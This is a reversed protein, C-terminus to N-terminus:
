GKGGRGTGELGVEKRGESRAGDGEGGGLGVDQHDSVPLDGLRVLGDEVGDLGHMVVPVPPPPLVGACHPVVLPTRNPPSTCYYLQLATRYSIAVTTM